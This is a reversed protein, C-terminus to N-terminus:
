YYKINSLTESRSRKTPLKTSSITTTTKRKRSKNGASFAKDQKSVQMKSARPQAGRGASRPAGPRSHQAARNRSAGSPGRATAGPKISQEISKSISRNVSDKAAKKIKKKGAIIQGIEPIAATVLNRGLKKALPLAYKKVLPLACWGVRVALAGLGAAGSGFQRAPGDHAQVNNSFGIQAEYHTDMRQIKCNTSSQSTDFLFLTREIYSFRIAQKSAQKM